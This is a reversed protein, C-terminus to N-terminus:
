RDITVFQCNTKLRIEPSGEKNQEVWLEIGAKNPDSCPLDPNESGPWDLEFRTGDVTVIISEPADSAPFTADEDAENSDSLNYEDEFLTAGGEGSIKVTVSRAFRRDNLYVSVTHAPEESDTLSKCGSLGVAVFTGIPILVDRRRL